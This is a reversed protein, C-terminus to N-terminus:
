RARGCRRCGRHEGWSVVRTCGCGACPAATEVGMDGRLYVSWDGPLYRGGGSPWGLDEGRVAPMSFGGRLFYTRTVDVGSRGFLRHANANPAVISM